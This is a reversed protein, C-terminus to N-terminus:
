VRYDKMIREDIEIGLGPGQPVFIYGGEVRVEPIAIDKMCSPRLECGYTCNPTSAAFHLGAAAGIGMEAMSGVYCPIGAAQAIAAIKKAKCIGGAKSIKVSFLDAARVKVCQLADEPTFVSEDAMIPTDVRHVLEAMGSLDWRPLPQEVFALGYAEMAKIIKVAQDRTWAQNADVGIKCDPGVAERLAKVRLVDQKPDLVGVKMKLLTGGQRIHELSGAVEEGVNMTYVGYALTLKDRYLGGLLHYVPLNLDKGIMDWLAMEIASKAFWNGKAVRDMKELILEINLPDEGVIAPTLYKEICAVISSQFEESFIPGYESAAEGFGRVGTDTQLGVVVHDVKSVSGISMRITRQLPVKLKIAEVREIKMKRAEGEIREEKKELM